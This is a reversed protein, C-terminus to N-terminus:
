IAHYNRRNSFVFHATSHNTGTASGESNSTTMVEIESTSSVTEDSSVPHNSSERSPIPIVPSPSRLSIEDSSEPVIDEDSSNSDPIFDPDDEDSPYEDPSDLSDEVPYSPAHKRVIIHSKQSEDLSSKLPTQDASQVDKDLCHPGGVIHSQQPEDLSKSPMQDAAQVDKKLCHPGGSVIHSQHPEAISLKSPMQAAHGANIHSQQPEDHFSPSYLQCPCDNDSHDQKWKTQRWPLNDIGYNYRLESGVELDFLAFLCLHPEDCSEFVLKKMVCNPTDKADNIWRAMCSNPNMANDISYEVGQHNFFFTYDNDNNCNGKRLKGRYELLFDGKSFHKTTFLGYGVCDNIYRREFGELNIVAMIVGNRLM